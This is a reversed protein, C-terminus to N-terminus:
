EAPQRTVAPAVAQYRSWPLGRPGPGPEPKKMRHISAGDVRRDFQLVAFVRFWGAAVWLM